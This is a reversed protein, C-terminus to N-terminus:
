NQSTDETSKFPMIGNYMKTIGNLVPNGSQQHLSKNGLIRQPEGQGSNKAISQFNLHDSKITANRMSSNLNPNIIGSKLSKEFGIVNRSDEYKIVQPGKGISENLLQQSKDKLKKKSQFINFPASSGEAYQKKQILKKEIKLSNGEQDVKQRAHGIQQNEKRTSEQEKKQDTKEDEEDENNISM